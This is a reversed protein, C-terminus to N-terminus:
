LVIPATSGCPECQSTCAEPWRAYAVAVCPRPCQLENGSVYIEAFTRDCYQNPVTGTLNNDVLWLLCAAEGNVTPDVDGSGTASRSHCPLEGLSAPLEGTLANRNLALYRLNPLGNASGMNEPLSGKLRYQAKDSRPEVFLTHLRPMGLLLSTPLTGELLNSSLDLFQLTSGLSEGFSEPIQGQLNNSALHIASIGHANTQHWLDPLTRETM